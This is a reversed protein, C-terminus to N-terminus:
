HNITTIKIRKLDPELKVQTKPQDRQETTQTYDCEVCKISDDDLLMVLADVAKCQPCIAGAIFRQRPQM